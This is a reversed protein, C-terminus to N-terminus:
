VIAFDTTLDAVTLVTMPWMARSDSMHHPGFDKTKAWFKRRLKILLFTVYECLFFVKTTGCPANIDIFVDIRWEFHTIHFPSICDYKLTLIVVISEVIELNRLCHLPNLIAMLTDPCTYVSESQHPTKTFM